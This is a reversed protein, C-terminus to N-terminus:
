IRKKRKNRKQQRTKVIPQSSINCQSAPIRFQRATKSVVTPYDFQTAANKKGSLELREGDLTLINLMVVQADTYEKLKDKVRTEVQPLYVAVVLLPWIAAAFPALIYYFAPNRFIDKM